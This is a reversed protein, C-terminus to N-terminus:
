ILEYVPAAVDVMPTSAARGRVEIRAIPQAALGHVALTSHDLDRHSSTYAGALVGRCMLVVGTESGGQVMVGGDFREEALYRLLQDFDVFRGRLGTLLPRATLLLTLAAVTERQLEAVDLVGDGREMRRRLQELGLEDETVAGDHFCAGLVRGGALTVAGGFGSGRLALYGTLRDSQITRLVKGVDVLSSSLGTCVPRGTPLPSPGESGGADPRQAAPARGPTPPAAPRRAWPTDQLAATTPAGGSVPSSRVPTAPAGAGPRRADPIEAGAAHAPRVAPRTVPGPRPGSSRREAEAVLEGTTASITQEMPLSARPDFVFDGQTWSLTTLVAEPGHGPDGVAHFLHGFLLYLSCRGGPSSVVLAGTARKSQLDLLVSALSHHSLSGQTQV